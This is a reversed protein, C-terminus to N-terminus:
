TIACFDGQIHKIHKLNKCVKKNAILKEIGFLGDQTYTTFRIKSLLRVLSGSRIGTVIELIDKANNYKYGSAERLSIFGNVVRDALLWVLVPNGALLQLLGPNKKFIRVLTLQTWQFRSIASIINAPITHSFLSFPSSDNYDSTELFFPICPDSDEEWESTEPNLREVSLGREWTGLRLHSNTPPVDIILYHNESDFIISSQTDLADPQSDTLHTM